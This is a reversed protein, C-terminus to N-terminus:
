AVLALAGAAPKEVEMAMVSLKNSRRAGATPVQRAEGRPRWWRGNPPKATGDPYESTFYIWDTSRIDTGQEFHILDTSFIVAPQSRGMGVIPEDFNPTSQFMCPVNSSVIAFTSAGPAGSSIPVTERIITVTDRYARRQRANLAMGVGLVFVARRFAWSPLESLRSLWM